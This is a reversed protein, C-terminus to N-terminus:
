LEINEDNMRSCFEWCLINAWVVIRIDNCLLYKQGFNVIHAFSVCDSVLCVIYTYLLVSARLPIWQQRPSFFLTVHESHTDTAKTIWCAIRMWRIINDDTAQRAAGYREVNYWLRCSKRFFNNFMFHANQNERCSKGSFKEMRLLISCSIM